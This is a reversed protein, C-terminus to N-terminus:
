LGMATLIGTAYMRATFDNGHNCNTNLYDCPEKSKIIEYFLSTQRYLGIKDDADAIECLATEYEMMRDKDWNVTKQTPIMASYFLIETESTGGKTRAIEVMKQMNEKFKEASLNGCVDNVGFGILVLDPVVQRGDEDKWLALRPELNQAGWNTEKGGLALNKIRIDAAPYAQKLKTGFQDMWTPAYPPMNISSKIFNGETNSADYIENVSNIGSSSWGCSISDGFIVINVREGNQLKQMTRQLKQTQVAPIVPQFGDAFTKSHKYSVAIAYKPYVTDPTFCLYHDPNERMQFGFQGKETSELPATYVPIASGELIEIEGDSTVAYDKGETFETQLSYSRLSIVEDVPYLLRVTKRGTYFLAPEHYVTDGEWVKTLYVDEQYKSLDIKAFEM